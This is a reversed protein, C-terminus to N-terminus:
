LKPKLTFHRILPIPWISYGKMGTSNQIVLQLHAATRDLVKKVLELAQRRDTIGDFRAENTWHETARIIHLHNDILGPIVTKGGLDVITTKEGDAMAAITDNDGTALIRNGAIAVAEVISFQDDVTVIKGNLLIQDPVVALVSLSFLVLYLKAIVQAMREAWAGLLFRCPIKM